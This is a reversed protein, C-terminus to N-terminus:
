RLYPIFSYPRANKYKNYVLKNMRSFHKDLGNSRAKLYVFAALELLLSWLNLILMNYATIMLLAGFFTLFRVRSSSNSILFHNSKLEYVMTRGKASHQFSSRQMRCVTYKYLGILYIITSLALVPGPVAYLRCNNSGIIPGIVIYPTLLNIISNLWNSRKETKADLKDVSSQLEEEDSLEDLSRIKRRIIRNGDTALCLAVFSYLMLMLSCLSVNLPFLQLAGNGTITWNTISKRLMGYSLFLLLCYCILRSSTRARATLRPVILDTFKFLFHGIITLQLSNLLNGALICGIPLQDYNLRSQPQWYHVLEGILIVTLCTILHKQGLRRDISILSDNLSYVSKKEQEKQKLIKNLKSQNLSKFKKLREASLRKELEQYEFLTKRQKAARESVREQIKEQVRELDRERDDKERMFNTIKPSSSLSAKPRTQDDDQAPMQEAGGRDVDLRSSEFLEVLEHRRVLDDETEIQRVGIADSENQAPETAPEPAPASEPTSAPQRAVTDVDDTMQGGVPEEANSQCEVIDSSDVTSEILDILEILKEAKATVKDPSKKSSKSSKGSRNASKNKPKSKRSKSNERTKARSSHRAKSASRTVRKSGASDQNYTVKRRKSGEELDDETRARKKRKIPPTKRNTANTRKQEGAPRDSGSSEPQQGSALRQSKRTSRGGQLYDLFNTQRIVQASMSSRSEDAAATSAADATQGTGNSSHTRFLLKGQKGGAVRYKFEQQSRGDEEVNVQYYKDNNAQIWSTIQVDENENIDIM